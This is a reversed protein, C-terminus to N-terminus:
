MIVSNGPIPLGGQDVKDECKRYGYDWGDHYNNDTTYLKEDQAPGEHNSQARFRANVAACGDRFGQDYVPSNKDTPQDPNPRSATSCAALAAALMIPLAIKGSAM